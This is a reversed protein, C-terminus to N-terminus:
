FVSRTDTAVNQGNKLLLAFPQQCEHDDPAAAGGTDFRLHSGNTREAEFISLSLIIWSLRRVRVRPDLALRYRETAVYSASFTAVDSASWSSFLPPVLRSSIM